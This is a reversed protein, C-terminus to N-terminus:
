RTKFMRSQVVLKILDRIRNDHTAVKGVIEDVEGRDTLELFRSLGRALV